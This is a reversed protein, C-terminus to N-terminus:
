NSKLARMPPISSARWAPLLCALTSIVLLTILATSYIVMDFADIDFLQTSLWDGSFYASVVGILLGIVTLKIGYSLILTIVKAKDAGIAMRIGIERTRLNVMYSMVGSVGSITIVLAIASFITLLQALFRQLSVSNDVAQQLSEFKSLPQRNDLEAIIKKIDQKFTSNGKEHRQTGQPQAGEHNALIALHGTPSQAMARYIQFSPEVAAGQEHINEVVGVITLWNEGQDFSISHNIASENPWWKKAM